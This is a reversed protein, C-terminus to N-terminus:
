NFKSSKKAKILLNGIKRNNTKVILPTMNGFCIQFDSNYKCYKVFLENLTQNLKLTKFIESHRIKYVLPFDLPTKDSQHNDDRPYPDEDEGADVEKIKGIEVVEKLEQIVEEQSILPLIMFSQLELTIYQCTPTSAWPIHHSIIFDRLLLFIQLNMDSPTPPGDETLLQPFILTPICFNKLKLVYYRNEFVVSEFIPTLFTKPYGRNRLRIFFAIKMLLFAKKDSSCKLYRKLEETVFNIKMDKAHASTFPIYNYSNLPKQFTKMDFRGCEFFRRGKYITIDLFNVTNGCQQISLVISPVLTNFKDLLYMVDQM